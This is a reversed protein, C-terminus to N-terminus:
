GHAGGTAGRLAFVAACGLLTLMVFPIAAIAVIVAMLAEWPRFEPGTGVTGSASRRRAPRRLRWPNRLTSGEAAPALITHTLDTM